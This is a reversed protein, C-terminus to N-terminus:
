PAHSAEAGETILCILSHRIRSKSIYVFHYCVSFIISVQWQDFTKAIANHVYKISRNVQLVRLIQKTQQM